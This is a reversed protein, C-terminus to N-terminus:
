SVSQLAPRMFSLEVAIYKKTNFGAATLDSPAQTHSLAGRFGKHSRSSFVRFGHDVLLHQMLSALAPLGPMQLQSRLHLELVLQDVRDLLRPDSKVVDSFADWECSHTRLLALSLRM